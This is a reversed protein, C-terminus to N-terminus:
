SQFLSFEPPCFFRVPIASTGIGANVHLPGAPTMFTGLDYRGVGPPLFLPGIFPLRVQGGHSHGALVAAFREEGIADVSQPFHTLLIRNESLPRSIRRNDGTGLGVLELDSGPILLNTNELWAGGTSSFMEEFERFAVGCTYDHNGPVAYVPCGLSRIFAFAGEKNGPNDIFDGTFCVFDPRLRTIEAALKRTLVTEGRYHLDTFHVFRVSPGPLKLTHTSIRLREPEVTVGQAISAGPVAAILLTLFQRRSLISKELM